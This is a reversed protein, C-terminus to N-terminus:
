IKSSPKSVRLQPNEFEKQQTELQQQEDVPIRFSDGFYGDDVIIPLDGRPLNENSEFSAHPDIHGNDNESTTTDVDIWSASLNCSSDNSETPRIPPICVNKDSVPRTTQRFCDSHDTM